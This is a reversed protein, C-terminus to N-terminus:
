NTPNKLKNSYEKPDISNIYNSTAIEFGAFGYIRPIIQVYFHYHENIRDDIPSSNFIINYNLNPIINSIATISKKLSDCFGTIEEDTMQSLTNIHRKPLIDVTYSMLTDLKTCAKFYNNEYFTFIDVDEKLSCIYCSNNQTFHKTMNSSIVQLKFPIYDLAILQMHSHELSAGAYLGFNKFIQVCKINENDFHIKERHILGKIVSEMVKLDNEHFLVDHHKSDIIVEHSCINAVAPYKNAVILCNKDLSEYLIEALLEKNKECFACKSDDNFREIPRLKFDHPRDTRKPALLVVEDTLYNKIRNM